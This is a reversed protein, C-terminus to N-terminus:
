TNKGFPYLLNPQSNAMKQYLLDNKFNRLVYQTSLAILSESHGLLLFGGPQLKQYFANISRMKSAADFYIIVNRCFIADMEPLLGWKEIEYLNLHLFVVPQKVQDSIRFGTEEKSFYARQFYPDISRFSSERYVGRRAASLASRSIDTAYIEIPIDKFKQHELFLMSLTYPEEGTACGASWIRLRGNKRVRDAMEPMVEEMFTELQKNERFFYTEHITITDILTAIEEDKKRDYKLFYYYDGFNNIQRNRLNQQLRSELIPKGDEAFFIGSIEYIFDRLVRFMASTLEIRDM